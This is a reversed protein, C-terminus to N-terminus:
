PTTYKQHCKVRRRWLDPWLGCSMLTMIFSMKFEISAGRRLNLGRNKMLQCDILWDHILEIWKNSHILSHGWHIDVCLVISRRYLQQQQCSARTKIDATLRYSRGWCSLSDTLHLDICTDSDITRIELGSRGGNSASAFAGLARDSDCNIRYYGLQQQLFSAASAALIYTGFPRLSCVSALPLFQWELHLNLEDNASTTLLIHISCV